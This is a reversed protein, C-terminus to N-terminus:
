KGYLISILAEDIKVTMEALRTLIEVRKILDPKSTTELTEDLFKPTM